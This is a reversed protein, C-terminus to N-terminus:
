DKGRSMEMSVHNNNNVQYANNICQRTKEHYIKIYL